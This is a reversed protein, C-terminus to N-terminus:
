LSWACIEDGVRLSKGMSVARQHQLTEGCFPLTSQLLSAHCLFFLLFMWVSDPINDCEVLGGCFPFVEVVYIMFEVIHVRM